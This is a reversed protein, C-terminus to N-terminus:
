GRPVPSRAGRRVSGERRAFRVVRRARSASEGDAATPPSGIAEELSAIDLALTRAPQARVSGGASPASRPEPEGRSSRVGAGRMDRAREAALQLSIHHSRIM